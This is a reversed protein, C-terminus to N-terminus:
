IGTPACVPGTATLVPLRILLAIVMVITAAAGVIVAIEGTDPSTPVTTVIVPVFKSPSELPGTTSNLPVATGGVLQVLVCTTTVTGLPVLVPEKARLSPATSLLEDVKVIVGVPEWASEIKGAFAFKNTPWVRAKDSFSSRSCSM